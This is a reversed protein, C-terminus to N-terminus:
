TRFRTNRRSRCDARPAALFQGTCGTRCCRAGGDPVRWGSDPRLRDPRVTVPHAMRSKKATPPASRGRGPGSLGAWRGPGLTLRKSRTRPPVWVSFQGLSQAQCPTWWLRESQGSPEADVHQPALPGVGRRLRAASRANRFRWPTCAFIHECCLPQRRRRCAYTPGPCPLHRADVPVREPVPSPPVVPM